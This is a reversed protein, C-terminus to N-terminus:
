TSVKLLLKEFTQLENTTLKDFKKELYKHVMADLRTYIKKGKPTLKIIIIRRDEKSQNREIYGKKVMKDSLSTLYPM